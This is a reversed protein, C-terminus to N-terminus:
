GSKNSSLSPPLLAMARDMADAWQGQRLLGLLEAQADLIPTLADRRAGPSDISSKVVDRMHGLLEVYEAYEPGFKASLEDQLRAALGPSSGGTSISVVLAGRRVVSPVVFDGDDPADALNVPIRRERADRAVQANVDRRNTAAVVLHVDQLYMAHYPGRVVVIEGADAQHQLQPTLAPSVVRVRAGAEYLGCVRREAVAGGGVVLCRRDTIDLHIPYYRKM